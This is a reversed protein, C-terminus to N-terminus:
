NLDHIIVSKPAMVTNTQQTDIYNLPNFNFWTSLLHGLDTIQYLALILMLDRWLWFELHFANCQGGGAWRLLMIFFYCKLCRCWYIQLTNKKGTQITQDNVWTYLTLWLHQLKSDNIRSTKTGHAEILANKDSAQWGEICVHNSSCCHLCIGSRHMQRQTKM